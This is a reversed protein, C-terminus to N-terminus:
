RIELGTGQVNTQTLLSGLYGTVQIKELKVGTMNALAIGNTCNGTLSSLSFGALPKKPSIDRADVLRPCNTV